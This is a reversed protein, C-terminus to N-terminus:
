LLEDKIQQESLGAQFLIEEVYRKSTATDISQILIQVLIRELRTLPGPDTLKAKVITKVM